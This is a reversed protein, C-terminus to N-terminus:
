SDAEDFSEEAWEVTTQWALVRKLVSRQGKAQWFEESSNCSDVDLTSLITEIEKLFEQWGDSLFMERQDSFWKQEEHTM